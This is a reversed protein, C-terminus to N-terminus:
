PYPYKRRGAPTSWIPSKSSKAPQTKVLYFGTAPDTGQWEGLGHLINEVERIKDRTSERSNVNPIHIITKEDPSLVDFITKDADSNKELYSGAYFYYGINLRKLYQYGNLQEYYTYTVTKFKAEDHPSLVAEADGRFYSGTM